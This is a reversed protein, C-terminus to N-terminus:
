WKKNKGKKKQAEGVVYRGHITRCKLSADALKALTSQFTLHNQQFLEFYKAVKIHVSAVIRGADRNEMNNKNVKGCNKLLIRPKGCWSTFDFAFPM